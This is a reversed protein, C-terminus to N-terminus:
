ILKEIEIFGKMGSYDLASSWNYAEQSNAFGHKVPNNHIYELKQELMQSDYLEIPHNGHQWFQNTENQSNAKGKERFFKLMWDKRSESANKKIEEIIKM